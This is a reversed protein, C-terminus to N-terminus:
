FYFAINWYAKSSSFDSDDVNHAVLLSSVFGRYKIRLTFALQDKFYEGQVALFKIPYYSINYFASQKNDSFHYGVSAMLKKIAYSAVAFTSYQNAGIATAPLFKSKLGLFNGQETGQFKFFFNLKSFSHAPIGSQIGVEVKEHVGFNFVIQDLSDFKFNEFVSISGKLKGITNADYSTYVGTTGYLSTFKIIGLSDQAWGNIVRLFFFLLVAIYRKM